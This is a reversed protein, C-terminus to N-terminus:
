TYSPSSLSLPNLGSTTIFEFFYDAGCHQWSSAVACSPPTHIFEVQFPLKAQKTLRYKNGKSIAGNTFVQCSTLNNQTINHRFRSTSLNQNRSHFFITPITATQHTQTPSRHHLAGTL